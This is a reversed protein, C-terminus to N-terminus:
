GIQSINRLHTPEVVVWNKESPHPEILWWSPPEVLERLHGEEHRPLRKASPSTPPETPEPQNGRPNKESAFIHTRFSILSVRCGKFVLM